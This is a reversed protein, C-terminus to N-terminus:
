QAASYAPLNVSHLEVFFSSGEYDKPYDKFLLHTEEVVKGTPHFVIDPIAMQIVIKNLETSKEALHNLMM